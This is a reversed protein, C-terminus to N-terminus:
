APLAPAVAGGVAAEVRQVEERVVEGVNHCRGDIRPRAGCMTSFTEVQELGARVARHGGCRGGCRVALNQSRASARTHVPSPRGLQADCEHIGKTAHASM